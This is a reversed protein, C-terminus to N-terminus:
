IFKYTQFLVLITALESLSMQCGRHRIRNPNPLLCRQQSDFFEKCFDDIDCFIAEIPALM